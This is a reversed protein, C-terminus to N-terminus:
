KKSVEPAELKGRKVTFYLRIWTSGFTRQESYMLYGSKTRGQIFKFPLYSLCIANGITQKHEPLSIQQPAYSVKNYNTAVHRRVIVICSM